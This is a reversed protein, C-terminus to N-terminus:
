SIQNTLATVPHLQSARKAPFYGFFLGVFTSFVLSLWISSASIAFPWDFGLYGAVFFLVAILTIALTIGAIGGLLTIVIAEILFQTRISRGNAGVAKRLGIEFIRESVAVYMINMIGVGGVVLAISAIIGLVLTVGDLIGNVLDAAEEQTMVAFDDKDPDTIEHNDRVVRGMEEATADSLSPDKVQAIITMLHDFGLLRKHATKLPIYMLEDMDFFAVSGREKFVGIVRFSQKQIKVTQGMTSQNPFLTEAVNKGLVVVRSLSEEEEDNYFRGEAIEGTDIYDFEHSVAYYTYRKERYPSIVAAQGVVAGYSGTINALKEIDEKDDLSLSTISIGEAIGGANESSTHSTNPVKIEVQIFNTGFMTLTSDFIAKVSQGASMIVVISTIGIATGLISLFTRLANRRLTRLALHISEVVISNM